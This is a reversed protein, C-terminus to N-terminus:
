DSAPDRDPLSMRSLRAADTISDMRVIAGDTITCSMLAVPRGTPGWALLGPQGNVSVRRTEVRAPNGQRVVELVENAGIKVTHGHKTHHHWTVAPDLLHLLRDFDGERAAALFADVVERREHLTGTPLPQEQVKRRARSALMKGAETSRGIIRGVEAFPVAFVDHLVFALREEPRLSELVLVMALGLADAAVAADEPGDDETVVAEAEWSDLSSEARVTRRRLADICIRGVVRTLWAGLNEIQDGSHRDLRVWAEQVADEADAYSGLVRTAVARLRPRHEEFAAALEHEDM